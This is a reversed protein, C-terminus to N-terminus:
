QEATEFRLGHSLIQRFALIVKKGHVNCGVPLKDTVLRLGQGDTVLIVFIDLFFKLFVATVEEVLLQM